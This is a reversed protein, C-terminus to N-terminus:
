EDFFESFYCECNQYKFFSFIEALIGVIIGSNLLMVQPVVTFLGRVIPRAWDILARTM